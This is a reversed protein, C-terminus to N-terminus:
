WTIQVVPTGISAMRLTPLTSGSPGAKGPATGLPPNVVAVAGSVGALVVMTNDNTSASPQTPYSGDATIWVEAPTGGVQQVTVKQAPADLPVLVPTGGNLTAQYSAM